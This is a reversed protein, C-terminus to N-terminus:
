LNNKLETWKAIENEVDNFIFNSLEEAKCVSLNTKDKAYKYVMPISLSVNSEKLKKRISGKRYTLYTQLSYRSIIKKNNSEM